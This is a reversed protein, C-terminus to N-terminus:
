SVPEGAGTAKQLPAVQHASQMGQMGSTQQPWPLTAPVMPNQLKALQLKTREGLLAERRAQLILDGDCLCRYIM